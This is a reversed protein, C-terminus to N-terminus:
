CWPCDPVCSRARAGAGGDGDFRPLSYDAIVLDVAGRTSHPASRRVRSSANSSSACDRRRSATRAHARRRRRRRRGPPDPDPAPGNNMVPSPCALGGADPLSFWFTAGHDVVGEGGTRGAQRAVIRRVTALGIGNGAFRGLSPLRQFVGFLKGAFRVDFGVGNDRVFFSTQGDARSTESRCRRDGRAVRHIQARQRAPEAVRRSCRRTPM